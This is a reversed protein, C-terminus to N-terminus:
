EATVYGNMSPTGTRGVVQRQAAAASRMSSPVKRMATPELATNAPTSPRYM